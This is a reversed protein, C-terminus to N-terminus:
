LRPPSLSKPKNKEPEKQKEPEKFEVKGHGIIEHVKEPTKALEALKKVAKEDGEETAQIMALALLSSIEEDPERLKNAEPSISLGVPETNLRDGYTDRTAIDSLIAQECRDFLEKMTGKLDEYRKAKGCAERLQGRLASLKIFYDGYAQRDKPDPGRRDWYPSNMVRAARRSFEPDTKDQQESM